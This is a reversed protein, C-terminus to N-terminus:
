RPTSNRAAKYLARYILVCAIVILAAAALKPADM